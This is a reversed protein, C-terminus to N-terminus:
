RATSSSRGLEDDSMGTPEPPVDGFAVKANTM